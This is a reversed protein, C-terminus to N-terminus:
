RNTLNGLFKRARKAEAVTEKLDGPALCEVILPGTTFGGQKLRAMVKPFDVQGDGPTINVNKPHQYDKISAGIVLGDVQPADDIPDLEGNSYYFINGPDYWVRFNPQNVKQIIKRCAAGDPNLGGHPKISLGIGKEAARPCCEAIAKYYNDFEEPSSTGGMLINKVGAIACNDIINELDTIAAQLSKGAGIGGCYASAIELNRQKCEQGVQRAHEPTSTAGIIWKEPTNTNMLGAYRYGAEAIADLATRYDYKVWPRTYCGIQYPSPAGQAARSAAAALAATRLFQRRTTM